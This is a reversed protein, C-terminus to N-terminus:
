AKTNNILFRKEAVSRLAEANSKGTADALQSFLSTPKGLLIHPSDYEEKIGDSLVLVRDFDAITNLRHAISIVTTAQFHLKISEQIKLDAEADVSATAEDMILIKPKCLIARGLCILQRQGVSLNDGNEVVPADLKEPLSEVYTKLGVQELASWIAQDDYVGEVDMNQRVNGSFLVPEQPIIQMAKRLTSLGLKSIDKGDIEIKGEQLEMIRFLANMLTSKGSGTRGVVGVKEGPNIELSLKKLILNNPSSPYSLSIQDFVIKGHKPWMNAPEDSPLIMAAESPLDKCYYQLREVANFENELQSSSFLLLGLSNAFALAYVLALGVLSAEIASTTGLMALLFTISASITGLRLSMWVGAMLRLFTPGNAEDMLRRQKIAFSKEVGFAKLTAIGGLTESVHAYLPSKNTAEFRKLEINSRQFYKLMFFYLILLPVALIIMRQDVYCLFALSSLSGSIAITTLFLM